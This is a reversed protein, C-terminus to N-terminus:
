FELRLSFHIQRSTEGLQEGFTSTIAGVTAPSSINAAPLAFNTHNFVNTALMRFQLRMGERVRFYKSAWFDLNKLAPGELTNVGANGFRGVPAPNSCVPTTSPCGPVAFAAANFWDNISQGSFAPPNLVVDPRALYSTSPGFSNTNSPDFGSFTPTFYQGAEMESVWSTSWGGLFANVIGNAHTLFRQDRGVPLAYVANIYGRLPRTIANPGRECRRCFQNQIQPGVSFAGTTQTDTLDKAWVFGTNFSLNKGVNKAASIQLASYQETGGNDYYTIVNYLSDTYERSPSYPITSPQPQNINLTYILGVTQTRVYGIRIGVQGVQHELTLTFQQSYPVYLNPNVGSINQTATTGSALFPSPFQFLPAGNVIKNTFTQSGSFPGGIMNLLNM